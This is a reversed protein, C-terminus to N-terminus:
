GVVGFRWSCPWLKMSDSMVSGVLDALLADAVTVAMEVVWGTRGVRAIEVVISGAVEAEPPVAAFVTVVRAAVAFAVTGAAVCADVAMQVEFVTAVVLATM